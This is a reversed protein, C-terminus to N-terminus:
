RALTDRRENCLTAHVVSVFFGGFLPSIQQRNLSSHRLTVLEGLVQEKLM